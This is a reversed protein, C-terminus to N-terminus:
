VTSVMDVVLKNECRKAQHADLNVLAHRVQLGVALLLLLFSMGLLVLGVWYYEQLLLVKKTLVDTADLTITSAFPVEESLSTLAEISYALM